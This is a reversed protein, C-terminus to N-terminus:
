ENLKNKFSLERLQEMCRYKQNRASASTVQREEAIEDMSKREFYFATLLQKCSAGLKEFATRLVALRHESEEDAGEISMLNLHDYGTFSENKKFAPSRLHDRWKNKAIKFLYAELNGSKYSGDKVNEWCAIFADQYVDKAAVESGSQALVFGEVKPYVKIYIHKLVVPDNNKFAEEVQTTTRYDAIGM